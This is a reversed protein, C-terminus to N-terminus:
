PGIYTCRTSVFSDFYETGSMGAALRDAPGLAVSDLLYASTDLGAKTKKLAGDIYLSFSASAGSEWAIEISHAANSIAYWQTAAWNPPGARRVVARIEYVYPGTGSRRYLVGFIPVQTANKGGFIAHFRGATDTDNPHFYFRAHYSPENTPTADMVYSPTNGSIVAQLGFTGSIAAAGTVSLQPDGSVASWASLDGSEFGDAFIADPQVNLVLTAALSWNGAADKARVSVVHNGVAWGSVDLLASLGETLSDFAGDAAAMATGKGVGPDAGEFWEAAVINTALDSATATLAVPALACAPNPAANVASVTPRTKDVMLTASGATGWNGATDKGRIYVPHAGETLLALTALPIDLYGMESPSDFVGDTAILLAGTGPTGLTDVFGEAREVNSNVGNIPPDSITAYTRVPRGANSPNPVMTIGTATPGTTDVTLTVTAFAGWNLLADESRVYIAHPGEVLAAVTSSVITANLSAVPAIMNLAMASGTGPGGTTDIFYEAAIVNSNGMGSDDGTASLAVDASGNTPSPWVMPGTTAPGMKDLHLYALNFPGWVGTPLASDKGHVYIAHAGSMLPALQTTSITAVVDEANSDFAGDSAAMATGTGGTGPAGIFYEAATIVSTGSVHATLTVPVSGDSPDPLLAVNTTNPGTDPPPGNPVNLFTLMGGFAIRGDPLHQGSNHLFLTADYLAYKTAVVPPTVPITVLLDATQGAALSEAVMHHFYQLPNGGFAILSQHLGLLSLSHDQLGANVERLLVTRGAATTIPDTDPYAKGNILWYRPKFLRMDFSAPSASNNLAPDIESLVLLAEDDFATAADYAWNPQGAPRVILPGFMGMAVQHSANPTLGAEYLYTGPDAADFTYTITSLPAAGTVDPVMDQEPFMLASAEALMNHLVVQVVDGEEAILAPGPLQPAGPATDAYGWIPVTVSGTLTITGTKAWLEFTRTIGVVSGTAVPLTDALPAAVAVPSALWAIAIFAMAVGLLLVGIWQIHRVIRKDM